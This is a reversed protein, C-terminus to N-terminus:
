KGCLAASPAPPNLALCVEALDVDAVQRLLYKQTRRSCLGTRHEEARLALMKQLIETGEPTM